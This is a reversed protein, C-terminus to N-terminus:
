QRVLCLFHRFGKVRTKHSVNAVITAGNFDFNKQNTFRGMEVLNLAFELRLGILTDSGFVSIRDEAWLLRGDM